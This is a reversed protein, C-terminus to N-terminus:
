IHFGRGNLIYQGIIPESSSLTPKKAASGGIAGLGHEGSILYGAADSEPMTTLKGLGHGCLWAM